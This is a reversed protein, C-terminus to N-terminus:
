RHAARLVAGVAAAPRQGLRRQGAAALRPHVGASERRIAAECGPRVDIVRGCDAARRPSRCTAHRWPRRPMRRRQRCTAVLVSTWGTGVITPEGTPDCRTWRREAVRRAGAASSPPTARARTSRHGHRGAAPHVRVARPGPSDFSIQTFGVEFAPTAAGKAFVQVRLPIHQEADIAIRVQGVLSATTRRADAGARLRGPRRGQRHRRHHGPPRTSRPWRPTPPRSRPRARFPRIPCRTPAAGDAGAPLQYHTATNDDSSWTWVDTGNRILDSEGLTGLLALRQQDDGAYWVRLTHTGSVLSTFDSSGQGGIQM